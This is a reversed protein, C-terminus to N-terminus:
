GGPKPLEARSLAGDGNRDLMKFRKEAAINFERKDVGRDFNTDAYIVPEPIALYAIRGAGMREPYPPPVYNGDKDMKGKNPDGWSNTVKVEPAVYDEYHDLEIPGIDDSKDTDLTAFFRFADAEFEELTLRGNGDADAQAFWHEAGSRDDKSRFPEGMPSIFDKGGPLSTVRKGQEGTVTIDTQSPEAAPAPPPKVSPVIQAVAASGFITLMLMLSLRLSQPSSIM